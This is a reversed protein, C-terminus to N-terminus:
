KPQLGLYTELFDFTERKVSELDKSTIYSTMVHDDVSPFAVKHKKDDSTGLADFMKLMAPVSVVSDQRVEDKYYYGLFVPQKVQQFTEPVMLEDVMSQLHTLAELRYKTTWYKNKLDIDTDFEHYESDKVTRALQLGWPGSLLTANPDFIEVNPSYLLLAAIDPDGGALHLALTGGTSTAMVIVKEGLQKGVAIAEKASDIVEDATLNLMPEEENLGHGALRPLYLNCKYRKATEIHLPDGEEQSASWGHLYVISYKTKAPISDYWIIRAENDPKINPRSAERQEIQTELAALDSTMKPLKKDLDPKEVKPGLFFAIALVVLVIALVKLTKVLVKM